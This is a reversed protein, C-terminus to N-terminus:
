GAYGPYVGSRVADTPDPDVSSLEIRTIKGDAVTIFALGVLQQPYPEALILCPRTRGQYQCTGLEAYPRGDLYQYGDLVLRLYAELGAKNTLPNENTPSGYLFTEAMHPMLVDVDMTNWMRALTNLAEEEDLLDDASVAPAATAQGAPLPMDPTPTDSRFTRVREPLTLVKLGDFAIYYRGGRLPTARELENKGDANAIGLSAFYCYAQHRDAHDVLDHILQPDTLQGHQPYLATRVVIFCLKGKRRAIIQPNKTIDRNVEIDTFGESKLQNGIIEIGFAHVEADNLIERESM